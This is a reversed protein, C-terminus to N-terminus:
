RIFVDPSFVLQWFDKSWECWLIHDIHHFTETRYCQFKSTVSELVAGQSYVLWLQRESDVVFSSERCLEIDVLVHLAV